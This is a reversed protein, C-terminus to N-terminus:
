FGTATAKNGSFAEGYDKPATQDRQGNGVSEVRVTGGYNHVEVATRSDNSRCSSLLAAVLALAAFKLPTKM